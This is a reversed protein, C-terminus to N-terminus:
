KDGENARNTSRGNINFRSYEYIGRGSGKILSRYKFEGSYKKKKYLFTSVQKTVKRNKGYIFSTIKILRTM